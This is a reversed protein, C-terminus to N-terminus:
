KSMRDLGGHDGLPDIKRLNSGDPNMLYIGGAGMMVIQQGDATFIAMPTDERVNPLRRLGSGDASIVWIDWPAGHAEATTPEFLGLLSDLPSRSSTQPYGQDDTVPGGIAAFVFLVLYFYLHRLSSTQETPDQQFLRRGWWNHIAWVPFGILILAIGYAIDRRLSEGGLSDGTLTALVIGGVTVLGNALM